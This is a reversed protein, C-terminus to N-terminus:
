GKGHSLVNWLRCRPLRRIKGFGVYRIDIWVRRGMKELAVPDFKKAFVQIEAQYMKSTTIASRPSAKDFRELKM